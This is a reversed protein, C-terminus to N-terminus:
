STPPPQPKRIIKIKPRASVPTASATPNGANGVTPTSIKTDISVKPTSQPGPSATGPLPRRGVDGSPLPKRAKATISDKSGPPSPEKPAGTPLATRANPPSPRPLGLIVALRKPNATKLTVVRRKKSGRDGTAASSEIKTRKPVPTGNENEPRPRKPVAPTPTAIGALDAKATNGNAVARSAAVITDSGNNSASPPAAVPGPAASPRQPTSTKTTNIKISSTRPLPAPRPVDPLSPFSIPHKPQTKFHSKFNIILRDALRQAPREVKWARPLNLTLVWGHAEEFMMAALELLNEVEARGLSPHDLAKRMANSYYREDKVYNDDMEKRLAKLAADLNEKRAFMEKRAEIEQASDQVLLLTEEVDTAPENKVVKAHEGFAIAALGSAMAQILKNRVFPSRDTMLAYLFFTFFTSDMMAGLDILAEFAKIRILDRTGDLLYQAFDPFSKPIVEAKMLRQKADLGAITWVNQYSNTWEDRRLVREIQEMAKELFQREEEDVTKSQRALWDDQKSPILSTALCEVLTAIYFHDSYPNGENNNFLLQDLIFQRAELPCRYTHDRVESIAKIV